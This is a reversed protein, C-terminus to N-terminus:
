PTTIHGCLHDFFIKESNLVFSPAFRFKVFYPNAIGTETAMPLISPPTEKINANENRVLIAFVM